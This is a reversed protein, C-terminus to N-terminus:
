PVIKEAARRQHLGRGALHDAGFFEAAGVHVGPFGADGIIEGLVITVRKASHRWMMPLRFVLLRDINREGLRALRFVVGAFDFADHRGVQLLLIVDALHDRAEDVARHEVFELREVARSEHGAERM